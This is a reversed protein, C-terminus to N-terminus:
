ENKGGLIELYSRKEVPYNDLGMRKRYNRVQSEIGELEIYKRGDSLIDFCIICYPMRAVARQKEYYFANPMSKKLEEFINACLRSEIEERVNFEGKQRPGKVTLITKNKEQRLRLFSEGLSYILNRQVVFSSPRYDGQYLRDFTEEDVLIKVETEIM